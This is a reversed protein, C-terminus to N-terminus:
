LLSLFWLSFDQCSANTWIELFLGVIVCVIDYLDKMYKSPMDLWINLKINLGECYDHISTRILSKKESSNMQQELIVPESNALSIKEM